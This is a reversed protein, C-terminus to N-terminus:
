KREGEQGIGISTMRKVIRPITCVGSAGRYWTVAEAYDQPVGYGNDYM